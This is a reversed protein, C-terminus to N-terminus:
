LVKLNPRLTQAQLRKAPKAGIEAEFWPPFYLGSLRVLAAIRVTGDAEIGNDMRSSGISTTM